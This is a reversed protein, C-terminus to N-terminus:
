TANRRLARRLDIADQDACTQAVHERNVKGRSTRPIEPLEYWSVPQQYAALHRALWRHLDRLTDDDNRELVLALGVNQGYRDDPLPFCCVDRVSDFREAVADVDGPYVKTGGKNIEERERGRLTLWGREDLSGIDGTDFWGQDVAAHTLDDREFYGRMLAATQVWVHGAENPACGPSLVPTSGAEVIRLRGGWVEGVLGDAPAFSGVSTGALWSGTETIGYANWVDEIGTWERVQTWLHASLPASGCFVRRLSAGSPPKSLTTALRWVAPVSSLFTIDHEDIAAGLRGVLTPQFPPLVVLDCGHLWPFLANCILGHGFHTPLLCLTRRYAELGLHDRLSSWRARLSRHTHVVGKPEGTTGSTFLILADDDLSLPSRALTEPRGPTLADSAVVPVGREALAASAEDELNESRALALRPRASAALTEVEFPTLRTDIPVACGGLWWLALLDAFFELTNGHLLLARDGPEVGRARLTAVRGAVQQTTEAPSWVRGSAGDILRGIGLISSM